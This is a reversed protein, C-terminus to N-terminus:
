VFSQYICNIKKESIGCERLYENISPYKQNFMYIFKYFASAPTNFFDKSYHSMDFLSKYRKELYVENTSYEAVIDIDPVKAIKLLIFALLNSKNRGTYCNFLVGGSSESIIDVAKGFWKKQNEFLDFLIIAWEDASFSEMYMKKEVKQIDVLLDDIRYYKFFEQDEMSSKCSDIQVKTRLDICYKINYDVLFRLDAVTLETVAESRIFRNFKTIKGEQTMFGGLDRANCLGELVLRRCSRSNHKNEIM